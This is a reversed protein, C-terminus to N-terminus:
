ALGGLRALAAAAAGVIVVLLYPAKFVLAVAAAALAVIRADLTIATGSVFTNLAVLSALLGVTVGHSLTSVWPNELWREPVLYGILKTAYAIACAALIWLWLTM